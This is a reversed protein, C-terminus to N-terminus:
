IEEAVYDNQKNNIVIIIIVIIGDSKLRRLLFPKLNRHLNSIVENQQEKALIVTEGDQQHLASFDINCSLIGHFM